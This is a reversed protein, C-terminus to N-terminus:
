AVEFGARYGVLFDVMPPQAGLQRLMTTVQGRHYSQHNIVHFMLRWLEYEFSDGKLSLYAVPRVLAAENLPALYGRMEGEVTRWQEVVSSLAPFEEPSPMAKLSRGRWRELWVWEVGAMHVLTDRVSSFSSGLSRRFQDDALGSCAQLQCDRAWYNYNFLELLCPLSIPSTL